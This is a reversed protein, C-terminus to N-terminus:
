QHISVMFISPCNKFIDSSALESQPVQDPLYWHTRGNVDVPKVMGIHSLNYVASKVQGIFKKTDVRIKELSHNGDKISDYVLRMTSNPKSLKVPQNKKLM